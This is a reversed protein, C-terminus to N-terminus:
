KEKLNEKLRFAVIQKVLDLPLPEIYPFQITGKSTKYKALKGKFAEVGSGTPFFGIHNKFAAFYVLVGGQKFAPMQYSITEQAEPAADHIAQRLQKLLQQIAIPQNQIYQDITEPKPKPKL